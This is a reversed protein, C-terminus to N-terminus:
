FCVEKEKQEEESEINHDNVVKGYFDVPVDVFAPKVPHLMFMDRFHKGCAAKHFVAHKAKQFNIVGISRSIRDLKM